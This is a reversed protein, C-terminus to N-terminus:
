GEQLFISKKDIPSNFLLPYPYFAVFIVGDASCLLDLFPSIAKEIGKRLLFLFLHRNLVTM